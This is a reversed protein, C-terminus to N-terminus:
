MRGRTSTPKNLSLLPAGAATAYRALRERM